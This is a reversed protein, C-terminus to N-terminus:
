KRRAGRMLFFSGSYMPSVIASRTSNPMQHKEGTLRGWPAGAKGPCFSIIGGGGGPGPPLPGSGCLRFPGIPGSVELSIM